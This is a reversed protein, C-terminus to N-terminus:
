ERKYPVAMVLLFFLIFASALDYISAEKRLSFLVMNLFVAVTKTIELLPIRAQALFMGM